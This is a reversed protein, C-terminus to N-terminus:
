IGGLKVGAERRCASLLSEIAVQDQLTRAIAVSGIMMATVSLIDEEDCNIYSSAHEMVATNMGNYVDAYATKITKDQMNIDTALFALPCSLSSEGQVHELSLYKDLLLSLWQKNSTGEPKPSAIKTKSARFKLAERYLEAKSTFHAYFAGRTLGCNSMLDDITVGEFGKTAFLSFSNDLINERTKNKHEKTYPM